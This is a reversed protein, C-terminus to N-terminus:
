KRKEIQQFILDIPFVSDIKSDDETLDKILQELGSSTVFELHSINYHGGSLKDGGFYSMKVYYACRAIQRPGGTMKGVSDYDVAWLTGEPVVVVPVVMSLLMVEGLEEAECFAHDILDQASSIAQAWKSYVESDGTVFQGQKDKGVQDTSKGVHEGPKYISDSGTLRVSIAQVEFARASPSNKSLSYQDRDIACVIEHYSEEDRRPLRFILLPFHPELNKCEVALNVCRTEIKM